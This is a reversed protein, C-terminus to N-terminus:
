ALRKNTSWIITLHASFLITLLQLFPSIVIMLIIWGILSARPEYLIMPIGTEALDKTPNFFYSALPLWLLLMEVCTIGAALIAYRLVKQLVQLIDTYPITIAKVLFWGVIFGFLICFFPVGMGMGVCVTDLLIFILLLWHQRLGYIKNM